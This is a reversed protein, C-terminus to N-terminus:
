RIIAGYGKALEALTEEQILSRSDILARGNYLLLAMELAEERHSFFSVPRRLMHCNLAFCTADDVSDIFVTVVDWGGAETELLQDSMDRQCVVPPSQEFFEDLFYPEAASALCITEADEKPINLHSFDYNDITKKIERIHEPTSYNGGGIMTAGREWLGIVDKGMQGPSLMNDFTNGVNPRIILPIRAYPSIEELHRYMSKPKASCCIGFAAAELSQCVILASVLDCGSCTEGDEEVSLTVMVPLGTQRCGLLAARCQSLSTMADAILLDVGGNKLAFAQRAYLNVLELFPTDGFPEVQLNLHAVCGAVLVDESYNKCIDITLKALQINYEETKDEKGIEDLIFSNVSTTPTCILSSGAELFAKHVQALIDPHELIWEGQLVGVPMTLPMGALVLNTSMAGDLLLIGPPLPVDM